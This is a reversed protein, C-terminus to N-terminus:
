HRGYLLSLYKSEMKRGSMPKAAAKGSKRQVTSKKPAAKTKKNSPKEEKKKKQSEEATKDTKKVVEKSSKSEEPKANVALLDHSSPKLSLPQLSIVLRTKLGLSRMMAVFMLVLLKKNPAKM